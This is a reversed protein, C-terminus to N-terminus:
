WNPSKKSRTSTSIRTTKVNGGRKMGMTKMASGLGDEVAPSANMPSFSNASSQVPPEIVNQVPTPTPKNIVGAYSPAKMGPADGPNPTSNYRIPSPTDNGLNFPKLDKPPLGGDKPPPGGYEPNQPRRPM